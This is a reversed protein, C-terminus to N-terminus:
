GTEESEEKVYEEGKTIPQRIKVSFHTDCVPCRCVYKKYSFEHGVVYIIDIPNVGCYPCFCPGIRNANM